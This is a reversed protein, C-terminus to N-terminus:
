QEDIYSDSISTIIAGEEAMMELDRDPRLGFKPIEQKLDERPNDQRMRRRPRVAEFKTEGIGSKSGLPQTESKQRQLNRPIIAGCEPCRKFHDDRRGSEMVYPVLFVEIGKEYCKSCIKRTIDPTDDTFANNPRRRIM